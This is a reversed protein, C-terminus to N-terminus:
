RRREGLLFEGTCEIVRDLLQPAHLAGLDHGADLDVVVTEAARAAAMREALAAGDAVLPDRRGTVVLVPVASRASDKIPDSELLETFFGPRLRTGGVIVGSGNQTGRQAGDLITQRGFLTGYTAMPDMVPNWLALRDVPEAQAAARLAVLGGQSYGLVGLLLDPAGYEARLWGAALIADRAQGSFRTNAWDGDSQGSGLFDIRLTAIGREAFARAARAFM